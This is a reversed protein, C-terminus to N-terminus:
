QRRFRAKASDYLGQSNEATHRSTLNEEFLRRGSEGMRMRLSEDGILKILAEALQRKDDPEVLLGNVGDLVAEPMGGANCGVVPKGERMAEVFVLGWSEFLSPAVFIDCDAYAQRLVDDGVRGCFVTQQVCRTGKQEQLFRDMYTMGGSDQISHDGIIRFRTDPFADIVTPIASLLVDIGKRRELRGVFLVEVDRDRRRRPLKEQWVVGNRIVQTANVDFKFGYARQIEAVIAHTNARVGDSRTMLERELTLMPGGFRRMFHPDNRQEPHYDLYFHLTTALATVLPWQRDLLFAIGECDWIAAEVADIDRHAAIRRAESLATASWNWINDPVKKQIAAPTPEMPGVLIRHVWVGGEFDVRNIDKSQAIVHVTHGLAALDEALNKNFSAIGGGHDPPFDRSVIVIVRRDPADIPEFRRFHGRYRELKEADILAGAAVGEFGRRLGVDLARSVDDNFKEEEQKSLLKERVAWSVDNRQGQVFKNQEELVREFSHFERAHKLMFYLKNKLVPYRNYPVRNARRINSAAFKHHVYACSLQAIVYGADIVRLCLDTEDLYYDFEEDFGEVEILVSRRFSSNCGLLHPFQFSKPFALNPSPGSPSLDANAFRDVLAFKYQFDYGTHNFVFGGSAGVAPDEYPGVLQTLWEPEPIADDDIFAVIDGQAMCIGINRSVSLNALSCTGARIRPSWSDIVATSDDASPGNVVIVEFEGPYDIWRLSSLTQELERARNL